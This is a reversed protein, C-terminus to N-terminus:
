SSKAEFVFGDDTNGRRGQCVKTAEYIRLTTQGQKELIRMAEAKAEDLTKFEMEFGPDIYVSSWGTLLYVKKM